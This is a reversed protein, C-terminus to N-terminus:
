LLLQPASAHQTGLRIEPSAISSLRNCSAIIPAPGRGPRPGPAPFTERKHRRESSTKGTSRRPKQKPGRCAADSLTLPAALGSAGEKGAFTRRAARLQRAEKM